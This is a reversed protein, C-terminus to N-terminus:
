GRGEMMEYLADRDDVTVGPVPTGRKVILQLRFDRRETGPNSLHDRLANEILRTLTEGTEAARVKAARVVRDDLNLTIKM